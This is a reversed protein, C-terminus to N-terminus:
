HWRKALTFIGPEIGFQTSANSFLRPSCIYRSILLPSTRSMYTVIRHFISATIMKQRVSFWSNSSSQEETEKSINVRADSTVQMTEIFVPIKDEANSNSKILQSVVKGIKRVRDIVALNPFCKCDTAIVQNPPVVKMLGVRKKGSIEYNQLDDLLESVAINDCNGSNNLNYRSLHWGSIEHTQRNMKKKEFHMEYEPVSPIKTPRPQNWRQLQETLSEENEKRVFERM